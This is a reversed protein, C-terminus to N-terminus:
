VIKNWSKSVTRALEQEMSDQKFYLNTEPKNSSFHNAADNMNTQVYLTPDYGMSLALPTNGGYVPQRNATAYYEAVARLHYRRTVVMHIVLFMVNMGLMFCLCTIAVLFAVDIGLPGGGIGFCYPTAPCNVINVIYWGLCTGQVFIVFLLILVHLARVFFSGVNYLFVATALPTVNGFTPVTLGWFIVTIYRTIEPTPMLIAIQNGGWVAEIGCYVFCLFVTAIRVYKIPVFGFCFPTSSGNM